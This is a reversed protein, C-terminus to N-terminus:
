TPLGTQVERDVGPPCRQFGGGVGTRPQVPEARSAHGVAAAVHHRPQAAVVFTDQDSAAQVRLLFQYRHGVEVRRRGPVFAFGGLHDAHVEGIAIGSRQQQTGARTAQRSRSWAAGNCGSRGSTGSVARSARGHGPTLGAPACGPHQDVTACMLGSGGPCCRCGCDAAVACPARPACPANARSSAAQM